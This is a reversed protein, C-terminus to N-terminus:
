SCFSRWQSCTKSDLPSLRRAGCEGLNEGVIGSFRWTPCAISNAPVECCAWTAMDQEDDSM